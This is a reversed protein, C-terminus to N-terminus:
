VVRRIRSAGAPRKTRQSLEKNKCRAAATNRIEQMEALTLKDFESNFLKLFLRTKLSRKM